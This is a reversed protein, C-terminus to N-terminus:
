RRTSAGTGCGLAQRWRRLAVLVARGLYWALALRERLCYHWRQWLRRAPKGPVASGVARVGVSRFALLARTLHYRDTVILVRSWGHQWLVDRCRWASEFTSTAQDELVISSHPIGHAVALRQMVEAEAPSYKGVGGTVLLHPAYGRQLLDVAHLVRRRLMPSPRGGPWVAAGLVVIVDYSLPVTQKHRQFMACPRM